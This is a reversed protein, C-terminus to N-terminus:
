KNRRVHNQQTPLAERRRLVKWSTSFSKSEIHPTEGVHYCCNHQVEEFEMKEITKRGWYRHRKAEVLLSKRIDSEHIERCGEYYRKSSSSSTFDIISPQALFDLGKPKGSDEEDEHKRPPPILSFMLQPGSSTPSTLAAM